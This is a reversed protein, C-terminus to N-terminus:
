KNGGKKKQVAQKVKQGKGKAPAAKAASKVLHRVTFARQKRNIMVSFRDFDTQNARAERQAFKKAFSTSNWKEELGFKEAAKLVTSHKAGRLLPLRLKTLTLRRLPYLVRPFDPGDVLVRNMDGIDVIVAVKGYDEGYNVFAVRGAQVFTRYGQVNFITLNICLRSSLWGLIAM